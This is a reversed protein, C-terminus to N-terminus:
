LLESTSTLNINSTSAGISVAMVLVVLTERVFGQRVHSDLDVEPRKGKVNAEYANPLVTTQCKLIAINSKNSVM